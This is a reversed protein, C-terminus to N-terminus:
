VFSSGPLPIGNIFSYMMTYAPLAKYEAVMHGAGRVTVVSLYPFVSTNAFGNTNWGIVYGAALKTGQSAMLWQSWDQVQVIKYQDAYSQVAKTVANQVAFSNVSPDTDGVYWMVRVQQGGNIAPDTNTILTMLPPIVTMSNYYYVMGVGNDANFFASDVPVFIAKRVDPRDFYQFFIMADCWYGNIPSVPSPTTAAIGQAKVSRLSPPAHGAKLHKLTAGLKPKDIAKPAKKAATSGESSSFPTNECQDYLNYAYYEGVKANFAEVASVCEPSLSTNKLQAEGGCVNLLADWMAVSAQGHGYLFLLQDYPGNSGGCLVDGGLCADGLAISGLAGLVKGFYGTGKQLLWRATEGIFVGAYSEGAFHLKQAPNSLFMPFHDDGFVIKLTEANTVGVRTDNWAGCSTANGSPGQPMCYSFGIPPPNEFVLVSALKTWAWPNRILRITDDDSEPDAFPQNDEFKGKLQKYLRLLAAEDSTDVIIKQKKNVEPQLSEM